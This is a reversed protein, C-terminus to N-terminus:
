IQLISPRLVRNWNNLGKYELVRGPFARCGLDRFELAM